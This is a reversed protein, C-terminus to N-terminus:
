RPTFDKRLENEAYEGATISSVRVVRALVTKKKLYDRVALLRREGFVLEGDETIGVPQLLGEERISRALARLDGLDKRHRCGLKISAIPVEHM